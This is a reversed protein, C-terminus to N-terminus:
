GRGGCLIRLAEDFRAQRMNHSLQEWHVRGYLTKAGDDALGAERGWFRRQFDAYAPVAENRDISKGPSGATLFAMAYFM